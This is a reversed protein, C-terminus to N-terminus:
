CCLADTSLECCLTEAREVLVGALAPMAYPMLADIVEVCADDGLSGCYGDGKLFDMIEAITSEMGIINAVAAVGGTCEDCTPSMVKQYSNKKCAGVQGCVSNAELFVPYMALAIGPWYMPIAAECEAVDEAGPCLVAVLLGTQEAISADSM